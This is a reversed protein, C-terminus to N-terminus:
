EKLGTEGDRRPQSSDKEAHAPYIWHGRARPASKLACTTAVLSMVRELTANGSRLAQGDGVEVHLRPDRTREKAHAFDDAAPEIGVVRSRTTAEAV